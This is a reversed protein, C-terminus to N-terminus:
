WGAKKSANVLDSTTKTKRLLDMRKSIYEGRESVFDPDGCKSHRWKFLLQDYDLRDIEAVWAEPSNM